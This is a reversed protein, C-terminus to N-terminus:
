QRWDTPQWTEGTANFRVPKEDFSLIPQRGIAADLMAQALNGRSAARLGVYSTTLRPNIEIVTDESEGDRGLVLDVGVYGCLDGLTQLARIAM